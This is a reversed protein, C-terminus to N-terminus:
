NVKMKIGLFILLLVVAPGSALISLKAYLSLDFSVLAALIALILPTSILHLRKRIEFLISRRIRVPACQGVKLENRADYDLLIPQLDVSGMNPVEGCNFIYNDSDGVRRQMEENLDDSLELARMKLRCYPSEIVVLDGPEIGIISMSERKIRCVRIEMDNYSSKRLRVLNIQVGFFSGVFRELINSKNNIFKGDMRKIPYVFVADGKKVALACRLKQDLNIETEGIQEDSLYEIKAQINFLRDDRELLCYNSSKKGRFFGKNVQVAVEGNRKIKGTSRVTMKTPESKIVEDIVRELGARSYFGKIGSLGSFYNLIEDRSTTESERLGRMLTKLYRKGPKQFVIDESSWKSTFTIVPFGEDEGIMLVKGYLRNKDDPGLCISGNSKLEEFDIALSSSDVFGANEQRVVDNFQDATILYMRCHTYTSENKIDSIFSVAMNEWFVVKEAFYMEYPIDCFRSKVPLTSDSCGPYVKNM